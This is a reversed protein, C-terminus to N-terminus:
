PAPTVAPAAIAAPAPAPAVTAAPADEVKCRFEGGLLQPAGSDIATKLVYTGPALRPIIEFALERLEGPLVQARGPKLEGQAVVRGTEDQVEMTGKARFTASGDNRLSVKALQKPGNVFEMDSIRPAGALKQSPTVFVKCGMRMSVLINVGSGTQTPLPRSQFFMMARAEENFGAPATITYRVRMSKKPALNFEAPSLKIWNACSRPTSGAEAYRYEGGTTLSFDVVSGSIHVPADGGNYIEVDDTIRNDAQTIKQQVEMPMLGLTAQSRPATAACLLILLFSYFRAKM